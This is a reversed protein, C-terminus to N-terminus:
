NTESGLIVIVDSDADQPLEETEGVVFSEELVSKLKDLFAAEVTEKAQIITETYDSNDANGISSVTFGESELNEQQRSAEGSIGSGNQIEIEYKTLDVAKTPEPMVTPTPTLTVVNIKEVKINNKYLFIGGLMLLAVAFVFLIPWMFNKQPPSSGAPQKEEESMKAKFDTLPDSKPEPTTEEIVEVRETTEIVTDAVVVPEKKESQAETKKQAEAHAANSTTSATKKAAAM